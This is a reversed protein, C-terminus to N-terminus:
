IKGIECFNGVFGVSCSCHYANFEDICTGNNQCSIGNCDDIDIVL